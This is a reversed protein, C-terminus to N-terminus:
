VSYFWNCQEVIIVEKNIIICYVVNIHLPSIHYSYTLYLLDSM